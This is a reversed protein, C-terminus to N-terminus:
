PNAKSGSEILVPKAGIQVVQNAPIAAANGSLDKVIRFESGVRHPMTACTEGSCAQSVNENRPEHTSGTSTKWLILAKQGNAQLLSCEYVADSHTCAGTFRAGLLWHILENYSRDQRGITSFWYWDIEKAGYAFQLIFWRALFADCEDDTAGQNLPCDYPTFPGSGLFGTETNIWPTTTWGAQNKKAVMPTVIAAFRREPLDSVPKWISGPGIYAHFGFIDSLRGNTNEQALWEDMWSPNVALFPAPTTISVGPVNARIIGVAPKVMQYLQQVTGSWYPPANPENWLEFYKIYDKVCHGAPSCHKTLATVFANFSPSGQATLDLPPNPSGRLNCKPRVNWCPVRNFTFLVARPQHSAIADLWLDLNTWKYIGPDPQLRHWTTGSDHLRITGPQSITTIWKANQCTGPNDFNCAFGFDTVQIPNTSPLPPATSQAGVLFTSQAVVVGWIATSLACQLMRNQTPRIADRRM